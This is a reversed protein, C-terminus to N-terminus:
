WKRKVELFGHAINDTTIELKSDFNAVLQDQTQVANVVEPFAIFLFIISHFVVSFTSQSLIKGLWLEKKCKDIINQIIQLIVTKIQRKKPTMIGSCATGPAFM